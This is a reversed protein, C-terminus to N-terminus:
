RMPGIRELNVDFHFSLPGNLVISKAACAGQFYLSNTGANSYALQAEPAYILGLFAGNGNLTISACSPLGFFSPEDLAGPLM